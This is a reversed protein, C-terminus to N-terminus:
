RVEFPYVMRFELPLRDFLVSDRSSLLGQTEFAYMGPELDKEPVVRYDSRERLPTVSVPVRGADVHLNVNVETSGLPGPLAMSPVFTLRRLELGLQMLEDRRLPTHFLVMPRREGVTVRGVSRIGRVSRLPSGVATVPESPLTVLHNDGVVHLGPEEPEPLLEFRPVDDSTLSREVPIFGKRGVRIVTAALPDREPLEVRGSTDTHLREFHGEVVVSAQAVPRGWVDTVRATSLSAGEQCGLCVVFAATPALLRHVM